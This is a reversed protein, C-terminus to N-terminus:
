EEEFEVSQYAGADPSATRNVGLIDFPVQQATPLNGLGDVPSENNIILQNLETDLFLPDENLLIGDYLNVNDFDFEPEDLLSTNFPDIRLLSNEFKFNFAAEENRNFLVEVRENGYVICNSFNAEVLDAVFLNDQTELQNEIL